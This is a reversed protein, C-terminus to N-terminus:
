HALKGNVIAIKLIEKNSALFTSLLEEVKKSNRMQDWVEFKFESNFKYSECLAMCAISTEPIFNILNGIEVELCKRYNRIQEKSLYLFKPSSVFKEFEEWLEKEVEKTVKEM